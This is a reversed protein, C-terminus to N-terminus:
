PKRERRYARRFSLPPATVAIYTFTAESNNHLGHVDGAAFRAVDGGRFPKTADDALLLLGEGEIAVWTQESNEHHHRGNEAGPQVVVKTITVRQSSSSEPFILQHSEFGPNEFVKIDRSDFFEM